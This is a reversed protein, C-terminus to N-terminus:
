CNLTKAVRMVELAASPPIDFRPRMENPRRNYHHKFYLYAVVVELQAANLRPFLIRVSNDTCLSDVLTVPYRTSTEDQADADAETELVGSPPEGAAKEEDAVDTVADATTITPSTTVSKTREAVAATAEVPTTGPTVFDVIVEETNLPERKRFCFRLVPSEVLCGRHVIAEDGHSTTLVVYDTPDIGITDTYSPPPPATWMANFAVGAM